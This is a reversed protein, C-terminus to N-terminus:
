RKPPKNGTWHRLEDSRDERRHWTVDVRHGVGAADLGMFDVGSHADVRDFTTERLVAEGSVHVYFKPEDTDNSLQYLSGERYSLTWRVPEPTEAPDSAATQREAEEAPREAPKMLFAAYKVRNSLSNDSAAIDGETVQPIEDVKWAEKKILKEFYQLYHDGSSQLSAANPRIRVFRAALEYPARERDVVEIRAVESLEEWLEDDIYRLFHLVTLSSPDEALVDRLLDAVCAETVADRLDISAAAIKELDLAPLDVASDNRTSMINTTRLTGFDEEFRGMIDRGVDSDAGCIAHGLIAYVVVGWGGALDDSPDLAGVLFHAGNAATSPSATALVDLNRLIKRRILARGVVDDFNATLASNPPLSGTTVLATFQSRVEADSTDKEPIRYAFYRPFYESEFIRKGGEPPAMRNNIRPFMSSLLKFIPEPGDSNQPLADSIRKLWTERTPETSSNFSAPTSGAVDRRWQPLKEYVARHKMRLYTVLAADVFNLDDNGVLTLLTDVQSAFRHVFRVTLVPLDTDPITDIITAIPGRRGHAQGQLDINHLEAVTTLTTSLENELHIPDLPPLVFPYQVIKELYQSARNRNSKALESAELVDLVTNEDYSLFYHVHDFRGLLRVAKMVTLLEDTHLRDIDDVIVLINRGAEEIAKSLKTFRKIFPDPEVKNIEGLEDARAGSAADLTDATFGKGLKSDIVAKIAAKATAAAVPAAAILLQKAHRGADNDPMAEAIARYFEDTLTEVDAAAWPTFRVVKWASSQEETLLEEVMNLVSSKGGGWPGALGYVISPKDGAAAVRAVVRRAFPARDLRDDTIHRIEADTNARPDFKVDYSAV